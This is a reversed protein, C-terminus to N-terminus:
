GAAQKKKPFARKLIQALENQFVNLSPDKSCGQPVNLYGQEDFDAFCAEDSIIADIRCSDYWSEWPITQFLQENRVKEVYAAAQTRVEGSCGPEPILATLVAHTQVASYFWDGSVIDKVDQDGYFRWVGYLYNKERLLDFVGTRDEEYRVVPVMNRVQAASELFDETISEPECVLVFACDKHEKMLPFIEALPGDAALMWTYIGLKEGQTLIRSYRGTEELIGQRNLHLYVSWPINFGLANENKRIIKAGETCSNFGVNMGFKLIREHDVHTVVDRILDYYPSNENELMRQVMGFFDSKFRGKSFNLAMDVLKRISREPSDEIEKLTSKVVAEILIRSINNAMMTNREYM